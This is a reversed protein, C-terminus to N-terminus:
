LEAGTFLVSAAGNASLLMCAQGGTMGTAALSLISFREQQCNFTLNTLAIGGPAAIQWHTLSSVTIGTFPIRPLVDLPVSVIALTSSLVLGSCVSGTSVPGYIANLYRRCLREELDRPRIDPVPPASQGTAISPTVRCDLESINISKGATSFNNGFDFTIELGLNSAVAAPFTYSVVTTTNNPCAQLATAALDTTTGAYNDSATPHKVTVTPTFSAGTFNSVSCQVTVQQGTMGEAIISEIRQKVTLGTVGTAGVIQMSYNALSNTRVAGAKNVSVSAGTPTIIWGDAAYGGATTITVNGRLWVDMGGNRFKNIFSGFLSSVDLTSGSIVLSPSNLSLAAINGAGRGVLQQVALALDTPTAVGATANVKLTNAAMTALSANVVGSSLYGWDTASMTGKSIWASNAANRQKLLGSTTDAWLMYAFTTTPATAGSSISLIAQLAGNIDARVTAGDANDITGDHQSM